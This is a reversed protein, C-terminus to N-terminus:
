SWQMQNMILITGNSHILHLTQNPAPKEAIKDSITSLCVRAPVRNQQSSSIEYPGQYQKLLLFLFLFALCTILISLALEGNRYIKSIKEYLWDLIKLITMVKIQIEILGREVQCQPSRGNSINCKCIMSSKGCPVHWPFQSEQRYQM